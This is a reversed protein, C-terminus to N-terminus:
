LNKIPSFYSMQTWNFSRGSGYMNGRDRMEMTDNECKCVGCKEWENELKVSMM